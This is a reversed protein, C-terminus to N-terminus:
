KGALRTLTEGLARVEDKSLRLLLLRTFQHPASRIMNVMRDMAAFDERTLPEPRSHLPDPGEVM